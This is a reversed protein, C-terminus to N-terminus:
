GEGPSAARLMREARQPSINLVGAVAAPLQNDGSADWLVAISRLTIALDHADDFEATMALDKVLYDRAQQWQQRQAAMTGLQHYTDAQAHLDKFEIFIELAEQYCEEARTWQQQAQATIGLQHYIGGQSYRDKFEIFTKLAIQYFEEAKAWKQQRGAVVGLQQYTGAQGHLDKFEICIKLAKGYLKEAKRWQQQEQAVIGLQHYTDAQEDRIKRRIYIKLAKQYYEEARSWERQEEAVRGMQHYIGASLIDKDRDDLSTLGLHLSLAKKYSAEAASYRRLGLQRRAINDLVGVFEAGLEGSLIAAPYDELRALVTEGLELGRREDRKADLHKSLAIFPCLISVQARLALNLATVLNEYELQALVHGVQRGGSQKSILLEDLASSWEDYHQRFAKEIAQKTEAQETAALRSRLFYPLIPQLHLIHPMEHHPSVLGWDAADQLVEQWRDFPLRALVPQQRLHTTYNPLQKTDLVSTFPALCALIQQADPSLNSHSYGICRLISETKRESRMDIAEDGAQLAALVQTPTEDALNALVVEMPLPYGDLLDLLRLVNEDQRYQPVGLRELIRDALTSAAERDLGPIDYINDEFTGPALWGEHGRSGLLVLTRGGALDCLLGQIHQREEQSLTNEIALHSGTISELNDLILLHREARLQKALMAQQAQSSLPQFTAQYQAETMLESAVAAVIQQQNWAREDYGFYCVRGVLGTTQWWAALHHLLTSKGAGGMGHILIINRQTLLRKEIRLIDLDRGLFGYTVEPPHYRHAEHEYYGASEEPTFERTQLQQEQNQYVVPLIWDELDISQAFYARRGKTSYLELRARRIAASLDKGAFLQRYLTSMMLEAATVTVSYGMALVMQVGATMLRSGLSTERTEVPKDNTEAQVQKGSQCANLIVIPVQHAILLNALERAEVPDSQGEEAGELFLFAKLGDYPEIDSRGYRAQFLLRDSRTGAQIEDYSLLAGHVDFHIVHYHGSGDTDKAAELHDVLAPYTGPRVIDIRVPLRAQRLAEVLPRSITRYGVDLAGSPRATIVLINITPSPRLRARITQPTLNRRVMPAQLALPQPLNPDKLAEWHLSHFDPSGAIEFSVTEMGSQLAARYRAYADPDAFVQRFLTEGYVTISAAAEQARVQNTFPFRLYQEFYWELRAEDGKAFPDRITIAYQEGHDFILLADAANGTQERISINTM